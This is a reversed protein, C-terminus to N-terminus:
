VCVCVLPMCRVPTDGSSRAVGVPPRVAPASGHLIATYRALAATVVDDCTATNGCTLEVRSAGRSPGTTGVRRFHFADIPALTRDHSHLTLHTFSRSRKWLAHVLTTNLQTLIACDSSMCVVFFAHQHPSNTVHQSAPPTLRM